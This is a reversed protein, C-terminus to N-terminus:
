RVWEAVFGRIEKYVEDSLDPYRELVNNVWNPGHGEVEKVFCELEGARVLHIGWERLKMDMRDFRKLQEGRLASRGHHKLEDWESPAKLLIKIGELQEESVFSGSGGRLISGIRNELYEVSISREEKKLLRCFAAYDESIEDWEGGCAKVLGEFPSGERLVDIDPVVRVDIALSKLLHVFQKMRHKGGSPLFLCQTKASIGDQMYDAIASYFKCDADSECIVVREHFLGNILDTYKLLTTTALSLVADKELTSIRNIDEDRTLRVIVVRSADESLLGGLMEKSHTALFVQKGESLRVIQRGLVAAQPPHLFSEPEDIIFVRYQELM